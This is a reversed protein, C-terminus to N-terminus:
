PCSLPPPGGRYMYDILYILDSIELPEAQDGNVDAEEFCAPEPGGRFMYDILYVLDSIDVAGDPPGAIDGRIGECCNPNSSVEPIGGFFDIIRLLLTDKTGYGHTTFDDTLYEIPFTVFVSHFTSDVTIGCVDGGSWVTFAAQGGAVPALTFNDSWLPPAAVYRYKTGDGVPNGSVGDFAFPRFTGALAAGLYDNMFSSDVASLDLAGSISSLVLRGGTDLYQKMAAVDTANLVNESSDGTHWFVMRHESLLAVSPSGDIDKHHVSFPIRARHLVNVYAAEYDAGRDDDVILVQPPGIASEFAFSKSYADSGSAAETSDCSITVTFSDITPVFTEALMFEIPTANTHNGDDFVSTLDSQDNIFTVHPSNAALHV